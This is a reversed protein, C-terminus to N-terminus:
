SCDNAPVAVLIMKKDRCFNKDCCVYNQRSLSVKTAVFAHQTQRSLVRRKDHKDRCFVDKTTNTAVFTKYYYYDDDDYDYYCCCHYYYVNIMCEDVGLASVHYM